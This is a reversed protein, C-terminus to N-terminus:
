RGQTYGSRSEGGLQKDAARNWGMLFRVVPEVFRCAEDFAILDHPCTSM